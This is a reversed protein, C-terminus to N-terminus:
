RTIRLLSICNKHSLIRLIFQACQDVLASLGFYEASILLEALNAETIDCEFSYAFDIICEMVDTRVYRIFFRHSQEINIPSM